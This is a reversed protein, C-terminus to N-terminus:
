SNGDNDQASSTAIVKSPNSSDSDGSADNELHIATTQVPKIVVTVNVYGDKDSQAWITYKGPALEVKAPTEDIASDHNNIWRLTKGTSDTIRYGTHVNYYPGESCPSEVTSSYVTLYGDYLKNSQGDAKAQGQVFFFALLVLGMIKPLSNGKNAITDNNNM